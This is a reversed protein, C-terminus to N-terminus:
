PESVGTDIAEALRLKHEATMRKGNVELFRPLYETKCLAADWIESNGLCVDAFRNILETSFKKFYPVLPEMLAEAGRFSGARSLKEVLRRLTPGPFHAVLPDIFLGHMLGSPIREGQLHSIFGFPLTQDVLLPIILQKKAVAYGLEQPAWESRKFHESVLPVFIDAAELEVLIKAKWEESVRLDDHAVFVALGFDLLVVKVEAAMQRDHTSYSVFARVKKMPNPGVIQRYAATDGGLRPKSEVGM